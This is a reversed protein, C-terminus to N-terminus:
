HENHEDKNHIAFTFFSGLMINHVLLGSTSFLYSEFMNVTVWYILFLCCACQIENFQHSKDSAMCRRFVCTLTLGIVTLGLLGYFIVMDVFSNHLHFINAKIFSSTKDSNAILEKSVGYDSGLLPREKFWDFAANWLSIRIGISTDPMNDIQGSLILSLTSQESEIRQGIGTFNSVSFAAILLILASSIIKTKSIRIKKIYLYWLSGFLISLTLGLLVQRTQTAILVFTFFTFTTIYAIWYFPRHLVNITFEKIMMATLIIIAIGSWIAPHQANNVSFSIRYGNLGKMIEGIFDHSHSIFSIVFGAIMAFWLWAVRKSKGQLFFAIPLFYFLNFMPGLDPLDRALQPLQIEANFWSLVSAVLAATFLKFVGDNILPKPSKILLFIFGIVFITQFVDGYLRFSYKLLAYLMICVLMTSNFMTQREIHKLTHM